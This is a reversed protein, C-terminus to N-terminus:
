IVGFYQLLVIVVWVGFGLLGLGIVVNVVFAAVGFGKMRDFDRDFEDQREKFRRDFDRM